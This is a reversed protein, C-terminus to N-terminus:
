PLGRSTVGMFRAIVKPDTNIVRGVDPVFGEWMGPQFQRIRRDGRYVYEFDPRVVRWGKKQPLERPAGRVTAPLQVVPAGGARRKARGAKKKARKQARRELRAEIEELQRREAAVREVFRAHTAAAEAAHRAAEVRQQREEIATIIVAAMPEEFKFGGVKPPPETVEFHPPAPPAPRERHLLRAAVLAVVVAGGIIEWM